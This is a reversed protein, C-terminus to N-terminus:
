KLKIFEEPRSEALEFKGTPNVIYIAIVTRGYRRNRVGVAAGGDNRRLVHPLCGLEIPYELLIFTDDEVLPSNIVAEMLDGYVVEEYPPCITVLQFKAGETIGVSAPDNLAQLADARIVNGNLKCKALNREICLCCDSALDVFTCSAAGRSLSELGVSGSGAFIDLHSIGTGKSNNAISSDYLGFSTLTSYVAEKVKGMMPRLYVTPSDLKRGRCTGGAIKLLAPNATDSQKQGQQRLRSPSSGGQEQRQRFEKPVVHGLSPRKAQIKRRLNAPISGDAHLLAPNQKVISSGDTTSSSQQEFLLTTTDLSCRTTRRALKISPAFASTTGGAALIIALSLMDGRRSRIRRQRRMM